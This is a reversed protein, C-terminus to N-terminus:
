APEAAASPPESVYYRYLAWTSAACLLHWASHGQVLSHPACIWGRLDATWILFALALLAASAQLWRIDPRAPLRRRAWLESVVLAVITVGFLYRRAPPAVVLLWGLLANIAVFAGLFGGIRLRGARVLNYLAVFTPLLYMAMVDFWQGVFTLSSHYLWSGLGVSAAMVAFALRYSTDDRIAVFHRPAGAPPPAPRQAVLLGVFVFGLNSWANAPQRVWGDRVHECFCHAPMCTAPVWSPWDVPVLTLLHLVAATVATGILALVAAAIM